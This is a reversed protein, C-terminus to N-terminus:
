KNSKRRNCDICLMQCNEITTKGGKSWPTIHDGEMEKFSFEKGCFKCKHKQQEYVTKKINDDFTRLNLKKEFKDDPIFTEEKFDGALIYEYINSKSKIEPDEMYKSIMKELDEAKWSITKDKYKNYLFGWPVKSMDDRYYKQTNFLDQVWTMVNSFYQKLESANADQDHKAMYKELEISDRDSIWELAIELLKQRNCDGKLLANGKTFYDAGTNRRSFYEKANTLWDGTHLANLLEQDQLKEGAFNITKFWKLKESDNGECFYIQLEYSLIQEQMDPSLSSFNMDTNEFDEFNFTTYDALGHGTGKIYHLISLLRQQGDLVEYSGDKNKVWYFVNLPYSHRITNLVAKQKENDYCFERQYKPRINVLVKGNHINTGIENGNWYTFVGEYQNDEYGNLIEKIQIRHLKIKM